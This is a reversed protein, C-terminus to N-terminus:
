KWPLDSAYICSWLLKQSHRLKRFPRRLLNKLDHADTPASNLLPRKLQRWVGEAPNLEPAYGPFQYTRLRPHRRLFEKVPAGKHPNGADWLLFVAGRLHRLLGRLFRAVEPSRINRNRYFRAYLSM